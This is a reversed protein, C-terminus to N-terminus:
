SSEFFYNLSLQVNDGCRHYLTEAEKESLNTVEMIRRIDNTIEERKKSICTEKEKKRDSDSPTSKLSGEDNNSVCGCSIDSSADEDEPYYKKEREESTKRGSVHKRWKEEEEHARFYSEIEKNSYYRRRIEELERSYVYGSKTRMWEKPIKRKYSTTIDRGFRSSSLRDRRDGQSDRRNIHSFIDYERSSNRYRGDDSESVYNDENLTSTEQFPKINRNIGKDTKAVTEPKPHQIRGPDLCLWM